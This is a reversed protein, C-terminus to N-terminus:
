HPMTRGTDQQAAGAVSSRRIASSSAPAITGAEEKNGATRARVRRQRLFWTDGAGLCMGLLMFYGMGKGSLYSTDATSELALALICMLGVKYYRDDPLRLVALLRRRWFAIFFVLGLLGYEALTPYFADALFMPNSPSLGWIDSLRYKHYLPSYHEAAANTAFTGLGSGFPVYDRFMITAATKYSEPRAMRYDVAGTMGEVYYQNFKTWTFFLVLVTVAAFQLATKVSGLRIRGRLFGFIAVFCVMEGFFKSKGGLLGTAMILLCVLLNARTQPRLLYWAMACVIALIGLAASEEGGFPTVLYPARLFAWVYFAYTVLMSGLVLGGQRRSLQPRLLWTCYFVAYPRVQQQLDLWVADSVNVATLLSYAVFFAMLGLYAAIERKATRQRLRGYRAATFLILTLTLLEDSYQLSPVVDYFAICLPFYLVWFLTYFTSTSM